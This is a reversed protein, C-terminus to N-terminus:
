WLVTVLIIDHQTCADHRRFLHCWKWATSIISLLGVHSQRKVHTAFLSLLM